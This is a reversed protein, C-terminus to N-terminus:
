GILLGYGTLMEHPTSSTLALPQKLQSLWGCSLVPLGPPRWLSSATSARMRAMWAWTLPSCSQGRICLSHSALPMRTPLSLTCMNIFCCPM